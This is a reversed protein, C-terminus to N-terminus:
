KLLWIPTWAEAATLDKSDKRRLSDAKFKVSYNTVYLHKYLNLHFYQSLHTSIVWTCQGNQLESHTLESTHSDGFEPPYGFAELFGTKKNKNKRTM